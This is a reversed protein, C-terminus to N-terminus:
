EATERWHDTEGYRYFKKGCLLCNKHPIKWWKGYGDDTSVEYEYSRTHDCQLGSRALERLSQFEAGLKFKRQSLQDYKKNLAASTM